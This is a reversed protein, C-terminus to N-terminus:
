GAPNPAESLSRFARAMLFAWIPFLVLYVVEGVFGVLDDGEGILPGIGILLLGIGTLAGIVRGTGPMWRGALPPAGSLWLGVVITAVVLATLPWDFAAREDLTVFGALALLLLAARALTAVIGGALSIRAPWLPTIGGLEYSGLMMPALAVAAVILAVDSVTGALSGIAVGLGGAPEDMVPTLGLAIIAVVGAVGAVTAAIAARTVRSRILPRM